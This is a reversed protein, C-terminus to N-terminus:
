KDPSMLEWIALGLGDAIKMIIDLTPNARGLEINRLYNRNVGIMLALKEVSMGNARRAARIKGGIITKYTAADM